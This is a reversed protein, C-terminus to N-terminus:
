GSPEWLLHDCAEMAASSDADDRPIQVQFPGEAPPEPVDVGHGRLCQIHKEIRARLEAEDPRPKLADDCDPRVSPDAPIVIGGAEDDGSDPRPAPLVAGHAEMCDQFQEEGPLVPRGEPPPPGESPAAAEESGAASIVGGALVGGFAALGALALLWAIHPRHRWIASGRLRRKRGDGGGDSPGTTREDSM